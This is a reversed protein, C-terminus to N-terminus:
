GPTKQGFGEVIWGAVWLAIGALAIQSLEGFGPLPDRLLIAFGYWLGLATIGLLFMWQGARQMRRSGESVNM